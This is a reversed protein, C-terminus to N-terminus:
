SLSDTKYDKDLYKWGIISKEMKQCLSKFKICLSNSWKTMGFLQKQELFADNDWLTYDYDSFYRKYERLTDGSFHQYSDTTDGFWDSRMMQRAFAEHSFNALLNHHKLVSWICFWQNKKNVLNVMKAITKKLEELNVPRSNVARVFVENYLPSEVEEPHLFEYIQQELMQWKTTAAVLQIFEEPTFKLSNIEMGLQHADDVHHLFALRLNEPVEDQLKRQEARMQKIDLDNRDNNFKLTSFYLDIDNKGRPDSPYQQIALETLRGAEEDQITQGSVENVRRFHYVLYLSFCFFQFLNWFRETTKMGPFHTPSIFKPKEKEVIIINQLLEDINNETMGDEMLLEKLKPFLISMQGSFLPSKHGELVNTEKYNNVISKMFPCLEGIVIQHIVELHNQNILKRQHTLDSHQLALDQDAMYCLRSAKTCLSRIDFNMEQTSYDDWGNIFVRCMLYFTNLQRDFVEYSFSPQEEPETMPM